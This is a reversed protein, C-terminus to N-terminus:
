CVNKVHYNKFPLFSYRKIVRFNRYREMSLFPDGGIEM